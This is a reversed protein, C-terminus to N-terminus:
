RLRYQLRFVCDEIAPILFVIVIVGFLVFQWWDHSDVHVCETSKAGAVQHHLLLCEQLWLSQMRHTQSVVKM